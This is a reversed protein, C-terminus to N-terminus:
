VREPCAEAHRRGSSHSAIRTFDCGDPGYGARGYGTSGEDHDMITRLLRLSLPRYPMIVSTGGAFRSAQGQPSAIDQDSAAATENSGGQGPIQQRLVAPHAIEVIKGVTEIMGQQGMKLAAEKVMPNDALRNRTCVTQKM